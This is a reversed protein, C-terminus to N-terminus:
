EDSETKELTGKLARSITVYSGRSGPIAGKVVLLNNEGDIEVIELNRIKRRKGGMQGPLKTGKM